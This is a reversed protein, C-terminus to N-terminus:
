PAAGAPACISYSRREDGHRVTLSQGPRFAFVAHLEDPVDFTIAVADGTVRDIRDVRLGYFRTREGVAATM